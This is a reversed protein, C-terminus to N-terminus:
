VYLRAKELSELSDSLVNNDAMLSFREKRLNTLSSLFGLETSVVTATNIDHIQSFHYHSLIEDDRGIEEM